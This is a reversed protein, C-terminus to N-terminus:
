SALLNITWQIIKNISRDFTLVIEYIYFSTFPENLPLQPYRTYMSISNMIDEFSREEKVRLNFLIFDEFLDWPLCDYLNIGSLKIIYEVRKIHSEPSNNNSPITNNPNNSPNSNTASHKAKSNKSNNENNNPNYVINLPTVLRRELITLNASRYQLHLLSFFSFIKNCGIYNRSFSSSEFSVDTHCYNTLLFYLMGGNNSNFSNIIKDLCYVKETFLETDLAHRNVFLQSNQSVQPPIHSQTKMASQNLNQPTTQTIPQFYQSTNSPNQTPENNNPSIFQSPITHPQHPINHQHINRILHPPPQNHPHMLMSIPMGTHFQQQNPPINSNNNVNSPSSARMRKAMPMMHVDMGYMPPVAPLPQVRSLDYGVQQFNHFNSNTNNDGFNTQPVNSQNDLSLVQNSPPNQNESSWDASSMDLLLEYDTSHSNM